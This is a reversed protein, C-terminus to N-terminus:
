KVLEEYLDMLAKAEGTYEEYKEKANLAAAKMILKVDDKSIGSTNHDKHYTFQEKLEKIDNDLVMKEILLNTARDFLEKKKQLDIIM